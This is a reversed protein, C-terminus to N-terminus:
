FWSISVLVECKASSSARTTDRSTGEEEEEDEERCAGGELVPLVLLVPSSAALPWDGLGDSINAGNSIDERCIGLLTAEGWLVSDTEVTVWYM